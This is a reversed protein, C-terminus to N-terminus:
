KFLRIMMWILPIIIMMTMMIKDREDNIINEQEEEGNVGGDNDENLHDDIGNYNYDDVHHTSIDPFTVKPLLM